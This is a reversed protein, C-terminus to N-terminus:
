YRFTFLPWVARSLKRPSWLQCAHSSLSALSNPRKATSCKQLLRWCSPNMLVRCTETGSVFGKYRKVNNLRWGRPSSKQSFIKLVSSVPCRSSSQSFQTPCYKDQRKHCSTAVFSSWMHAVFRFDLPRVCSPIRNPSAGLDTGAAHMTVGLGEGLTKATHRTMRELKAEVQPENGFFKAVRKAPPRGPHNEHVRHAVKKVLVHRIVVDDRDGAHHRRRVPVGILNQGLPRVAELVQELSFKTKCRLLIVNPPSHTDLVSWM